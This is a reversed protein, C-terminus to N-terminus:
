IGAKTCDRLCLLGRKARSWSAKDIIVTRAPVPVTTIRMKERNFIKLEEENFATAGFIPIKPDDNYIDHYMLTAGLYSELFHEFRIKGPEKLLQPKYDALVLHAFEDIERDSLIPTNNNRRDFRRCNLSVM